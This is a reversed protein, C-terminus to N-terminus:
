HGFFLMGANVIRTIAPLATSLIWCLFLLKTVIFVGFCLHVAQQQIMIRREEQQARHVAFTDHLPQLEEDM